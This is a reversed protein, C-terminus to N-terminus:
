RAEQEHIGHCKMTFPVILWELGALDACSM